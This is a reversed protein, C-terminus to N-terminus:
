KRVTQTGTKTKSTNKRSNMLSWKTMPKKKRYDKAGKSDGWMKEYEDDREKRKEKRQDKGEKWSQECDRGRMKMM